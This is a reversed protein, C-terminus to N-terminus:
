AREFLSIDVVKRPFIASKLKLVARKPMLAHLELQSWGLLDVVVLRNVNDAPDVPFRLGLEDVFTLQTAPPSM